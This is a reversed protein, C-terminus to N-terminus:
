PIKGVWPKLGPRKCQCPSEKCDLSGPFGVNWRHDSNGLCTFPHILTEEVDEWLHKVPVKSEVKVLGDEERGQSESKQGEGMVSDTCTKTEPKLEM